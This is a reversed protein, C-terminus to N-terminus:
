TSVAAQPQGAEDGLDVQNVQAWVRIFAPELEDLCERVREWQDQKAATELNKAIAQMEKAGVYASAGKIEHAKAACARRDQRKCSNSVEEILTQTTSLYLALLEQEARKDQNMMCGVKGLDIPSAQTSPGGLEPESAAVPMWTPVWKRLAQELQELKVPKVLYDDMGVASCKDRAESRADASMAVIPTKRPQAGTLERHRIELSAELGDMEPMQCDMLLLDYPIRNMAEVAEAGNGVVDARIGLKRLMYTVVKQNVSNDEAVLVRLTTPQRMGMAAGAVPSAAVTVGFLEALAAYLRSTKIPKPVYAHTGPALWAKLEPSPLIGTLLIQRTAAIAPDQEIARLLELGNDETLRSDIVAIRFPTGQKAASALKAFAQMNSGVSDVRLQWHALQRALTERLRANQVAVLVPVNRLMDVHEPPAIARPQSRVKATFWFTSGLNVASNVGITGGMMEALQKSIALGLGTGGYRRTTSGDAQSFAQFLRKVGEASIGIGSDTVSIRLESTEVDLQKLEAKIVIEGHETFKIANDTLNILIQRLRGPDGLLEPPLEPPLECVLELGKSQAREGLLEAVEEITDRLDFAVIELQMKGAEIKAFDLIDNIITLLAEASVRVTEACDQQESTLKSDLLLGVMGIIGNLPTRIEHSVNAVFQSKVRSAELAADYAAKFRQENEKRDTIDRMVAQVVSHGDLSMSHLAIELPLTSGDVRKGLWEFQCHGNQIAKEIQSQAYRASSINNPQMTPGLNDPRMRRFQEASAIGFMQLAADNCDIFVGDALLVIGDSNTAFLTKYKMQERQIEQTQQSARRIVLFAVGAGILVLTAGLGIMLWETQRYAVTAERAATQSATRQLTLLDDLEAVLLQQGPIAEDHLIQLAEEKREDIALELGRVVRPQTDGALQRVRELIAKEEPNLVMQDLKQRANTFSTGYSYFRQLEQDKEFVDKAIVITHMSIIRQRLSDRMISALEVKTNNENVIRELRANIAAMERLGVAALSIMLVLVLGFGAGVSLTTNKSLM